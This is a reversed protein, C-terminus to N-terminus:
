NRNAHKEEKIKILQQLILDSLASKTMLEIEHLNDNTIFTFKNTDKEFGAGAEKLNNAVLLDCNKKNFKDKAHTILNETEMAFGCIIQNTKHAGLYALIDENKILELHM